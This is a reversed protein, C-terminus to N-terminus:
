GVKWMNEPHMNHLIYVKLMVNLGAGQMHCYINGIHKLPSASRGQKQKQGTGASTGLSHDKM